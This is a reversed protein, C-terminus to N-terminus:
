IFSTMGRALILDSFDMDSCPFGIDFSSISRNRSARGLHLIENLYDEVVELFGLVLLM